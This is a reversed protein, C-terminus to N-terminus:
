VNCDNVKKLIKEHISVTPDAVECENQDEIIDRLRLLQNKVCEVSDKM